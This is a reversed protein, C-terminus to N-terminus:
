IYFVHSQYKHLDPQMMNQLLLPDTTRSCAMMHRRESLKLNLTTSHMYSCFAGM